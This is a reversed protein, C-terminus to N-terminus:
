TLRGRRGPPLYGRERAGRLWGAVTNHNAFREAAITATPNTVGESRLQRYREAVDRYHEDPHGRRGPRGPAPEPKPAKRPAMDNKPVHAVSGSHMFPDRINFDALWLWRDWPFRRLETPTIRGPMSLQVTRVRYDDDPDFWVRMVSRSKDPGPNSVIVTCDDGELHTVGPERWELREKAM